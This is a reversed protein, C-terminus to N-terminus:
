GPATPGDGTAPDDGGPADGEADPVNTASLRSALRRVNGPVDIGDGLRPDDIPDGFRLEAPVVGAWVPVDYDEEDDVPPGARVKASAGELSLRFVSTGKVEKPTTPRLEAQRGPVLREVFQELAREKEADDTVEEPVGLVVLSRYNMSHHFSSRALVLGDLITMEVCIDAGEASARRFTGAAPAGHLLLHDGDRVCFMPIVVPRGHRVTGVHAILAEDAIADITARDYHGREPLRRIRLDDDIRGDDCPESVPTM